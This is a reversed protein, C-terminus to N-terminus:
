TLVISSISAASLSEPLPAKFVALFDREPFPRAVEGDCPTEFAALFTVLSNGAAASFTAAEHNLLRRLLECASLALIWKKKSQKLLNPMGIAVRPFSSKWTPDDRQSANAHEAEHWARKVTVQATERRRARFNRENRFFDLTLWYNSQSQWSGGQQCGFSAPRLPGGKEQAASPTGGATDKLEPGPVNSEIHSGYRFVLRVPM